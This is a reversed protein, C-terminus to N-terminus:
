VNTRCVAYLRVGPELEGRYAKALAECRQRNQINPISGLSYMQGNAVTYAILMVYWM